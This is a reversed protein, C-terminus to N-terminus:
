GRSSQRFGSCQDRHFPSEAKEQEDPEGAAEGAYPHLAVV